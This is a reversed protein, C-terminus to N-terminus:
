RAGKNMEWIIRLGKLTLWPDVVEIVTTERAIVSALGGTAIVRMDDGLEKRFRAVLGEVLGVYGFVIGSRMADVTNGGIAHPPPQLDIGIRPLKSTRMFLADAAVRIGPAISGGLYDGNAALADFTTGTGMDVICAPGGYLRYAAAANVIRDAGVDRPADYRVAVGTKVGAGVVLPDLNLYNALMERFLDTIPPVVSAMVVGDIDAPVFGRHALLSILLMGYEDPMKQADTSVRWHALFEEERYLGLVVNTNGVDICLLM